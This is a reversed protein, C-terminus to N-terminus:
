EGNVEQREEDWEASVTNLEGAGNRGLKELALVLAPNDVKVDQKQGDKTATWVKNAVNEVMLNVVGTKDGEVRKAVVSDWGAEGKCNVSTMMSVM